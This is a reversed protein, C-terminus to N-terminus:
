INSSPQEKFKLGVLGSRANEGSNHHIRKHRCGKDEYWKKIFPYSVTKYGENKCFKEYLVKLEQLFVEDNPNCTIEIYKETFPQLSDTMDYVGYHWQNKLDESTLCETFKYRRKILSSVAKLCFSVIEDREELLNDLLNFDMSDDDVSNLFPIIIM